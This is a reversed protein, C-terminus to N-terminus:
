GQRENLGLEDKLDTLRESSTIVTEAKADSPDKGHFKSRVLVVDM